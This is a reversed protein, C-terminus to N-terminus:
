LNYIKSVSIMSYTFVSYVVAFQYIFPSTEIAIAPRITRKNKRGSEHIPRITAVVDTTRGMDYRVHSWREHIASRSHVAQCRRGM